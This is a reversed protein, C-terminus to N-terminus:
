SSTATRRCIALRGSPRSTRRRRSSPSGTCRTSRGCTTCGAIPWRPLSLRAEHDPPPWWPRRSPRTRAHPRRAARYGRPAVYRYRSELTTVVLKNMEIDKRDFEVGCVGNSVNTEWRMKGAVLDLVKVDGNDYGAAVLRSATSHADGFAVAWCDRVPEGEVPTMSAVPRDQQRPDWVHVCGDRSGTVIEPAGAGKLGGCGDIANIITDHAKITYTEKLTELDWNALKGEFDGTAIHREALTTAGFTGCKFSKPREVEAQLEIGGGNLQYIQLMGTQRAPSGLLVFRASAPIWKTEYVTLSLSQHVHEVLQPKDTIDVM